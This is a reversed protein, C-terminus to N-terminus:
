SHSYPPARSSNASVAFFALFSRESSDHLWRAPFSTAPLSRCPLAAIESGRQPPLGLSVVDLRIERSWGVADKSFVKLAQRNAQVAGYARDVDGQVQVTTQRVLASVFRQEASAQDIAARQNNFLFLPISVSAGIEYDQGTRQVLFSGYIDRKRQSEALQTGYEAARLESRAGQLNPREEAAMMRLEALPPISVAVELDGALDVVRASTGDQTVGLFNMVRQASQTYALGAESVARLEPGDTLGVVRRVAGAIEIQDKSALVALSHNVLLEEAESLSLSQPLVSPQGFATFCGLWLGFSIFLRHTPFRMAALLRAQQCCLTQRGSNVLPYICGNQVWNVPYLSCLESTAALNWTDGGM